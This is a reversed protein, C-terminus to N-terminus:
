LLLELHCKRQLRSMSHKSAISDTDGHVEQFLEGPYIVNEDSFAKNKDFQFFEDEQLTNTQMFEDNFLSPRGSFQKNKYIEEALEPFHASRRSASRKHHNPSLNVNIIM